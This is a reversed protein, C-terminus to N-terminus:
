ISVYRQTYDGNVRRKVKANSSDNIVMSDNSFINSTSSVHPDRMFADKPCSWLENQFQHQCEDIARQAGANVSQTMAMDAQFTFPFNDVGESM